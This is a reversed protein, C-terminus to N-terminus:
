RTGVCQIFEANWERQAAADSMSPLNSCRQCKPAIANHDAGAEERTVLYASVSCHFGADNFTTRM